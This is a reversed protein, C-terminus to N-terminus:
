IFVSLSLFRSVSFLFLSLSPFLSLSLRPSLACVSVFLYTAQYLPLSLSSPTLFSILKQVFLTLSPSRCLSNFLSSSRCVSLFMSLSRCVSISMLLFVHFSIRFIVNESECAKQSIPPDWNRCLNPEWKHQAIEVIMAQANSWGPFQKYFRQITDNTHCLRRM